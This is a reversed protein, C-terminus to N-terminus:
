QGQARQVIEKIVHVRFPKDNKLLTSLAFDDEQLSNGVYLEIDKATPILEYKLHIIEAGNYLALSNPRSTVFMHCTNVSELALRLTDFIEITDHLFNEDGKSHVYEDLGDVVIFIKEYTQALQQLLIPLVEQCKGTDMPEDDQTLYTKEIEKPVDEEEPGSLLRVAQKILSRLLFAQTQKVRSTYECYLLLM